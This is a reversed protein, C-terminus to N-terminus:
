CSHSLLPCSACSVHSTTSVASDACCPLTCLRTSLTGAGASCAACPRALISAPWCQCGATHCAFDPLQHQLHQSRLLGRQTVPLIQSSTSCINLASCASSYVALMLTLLRLLLARRVTNDVADWRWFLVGRLAQNANISAETIAYVLNYYDNQQQVTQGPGQTGGVAQAHMM